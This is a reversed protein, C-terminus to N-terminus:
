GPPWNFKRGGLVHAHLHFVEQGADKNCNIVFRYGSRDIGSMASIRKAAIVMKGAITSEEDGLDNISEIHKRPIILFHSPAQPAIDWFALLDEDEYVKKVPVAGKAIECFICEKHSM